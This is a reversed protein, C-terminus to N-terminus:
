SEDREVVAALWRDYLVDAVGHLAAVRRDLDELIAEPTQVAPSHVSAALEEAYRQVWERVLEATMEVHFQLALVGSGLAFGQHACHDSAFLHSAGDPLAFTEGHWHFGELEAAVGAIWPAGAAAEVTAIPHWGIEKVPNPGVEAGLARAILQGGLCHGLVPVGAGVARRILALEQHVWPLDDNVSMPGGMFVLGAAAPAEPVPEGADVRVLEFPIARARLVEALYGPGECDVHRFIIVPDM